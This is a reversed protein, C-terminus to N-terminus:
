LIKHVWKEKNMYDLVMAENLSPHITEEHSIAINAMSISFKVTEVLSWEKMYGYGIGAVFADGAGTCNVLQVSEAKLQGRQTKDAYYIGDEDLSIFVNKVGQSIFLDSARVLDEDSKIEFGALIEAEYRNPKLTHFYSALHKVGNAKEASVPDLIFDTKNSFHTLMYELHYPDDSDVFVYEANEIIEKKSEIFDISMEDISSMDAIASMMEGNEDLVALYTPTAGNKLILSDTMDYGLRESQLLMGKGHEDNGLISIFKTEIGVKAMNEAINRCVGGYSLKVKGPTSNYPMYRNKSFGVIDVVSAGFVLVYPQNDKSMFQGREYCMSTYLVM